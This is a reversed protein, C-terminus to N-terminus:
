SPGQEESPPLPNTMSRPPSGSNDANFSDSLYLTKPEVSHRLLHRARASKAVRERADILARQHPKM